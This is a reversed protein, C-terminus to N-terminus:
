RVAMHENNKLNVNFLKVLGESELRSLIRKSTKSDIQGKEGELQEIRKIERDIEFKTCLKRQELYTMIIKKRNVARETVMNQITLDAKTKFQQTLAQNSVSKNLFKRLKIIQYKARAQETEKIVTIIEPHTQLHSGIRRTKYFDLGFLLGLRKISTGNLGCSEIYQFLQTYVPWEFRQLSAILQMDVSDTAEDDDCEDDDDDNCLASDDNNSQNFLKSNKKIFAETLRVMRVTKQRNKTAKKPTEDEDQDDQDDYDVNMLYRAIANQKEGMAILNKLKKTGFNLKLRIEAMREEHKKKRILYNTLKDLSTENTQEYRALYIVGRQKHASVSQKSIFEHNELINLIYHVQKASLDFM